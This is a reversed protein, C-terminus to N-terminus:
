SRLRTRDDEAGDLRFALQTGEIQDRHMSYWYEAYKPCDGCSQHSCSLLPRRKGDIIWSHTHFSDLEYMYTFRLSPLDTGHWAIGLKRGERLIKLGEHYGFGSIRIVSREKTLDIGHAAYLEIGYQLHKLDTPFAMRIPLDPALERIRCVWEVATRQQDPITLGQEALIKTHISPAQPLVAALHGTKEQYTYILNVLWPVQSIMPVEAIWPRRAEHFRKRDEIMVVLPADCKPLWSYKGSLWLTPM